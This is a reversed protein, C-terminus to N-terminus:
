YNFTGIGKAETTEEEVNPEGISDSELKRDIRIDAIM